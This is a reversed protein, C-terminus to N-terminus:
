GEAPEWITDGHTFTSHIKCETTNGLLCGAGPYSQDSLRRGPPPAVAEGAGAGLPVCVM